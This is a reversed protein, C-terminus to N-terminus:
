RCMKRRCSNFMCFTRIDKLLGNSGVLWVEFLFNAWHVWGVWRGEVYTWTCPFFYNSFTDLTRKQWSVCWERRTSHSHDWICSAWILKSSTNNNHITSTYRNRTFKTSGVRLTKHCEWPVIATLPILMSFIRLSFM